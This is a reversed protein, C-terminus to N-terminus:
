RRLEAIMEDIMRMAELHPIGEGRDLEDEAEKILADQEDLSLPRVWPPPPFDNWDRNAEIRKATM